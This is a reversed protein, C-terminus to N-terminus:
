LQCDSRHRQQKKKVLQQGPGIRVIPELSRPVHNPREHPLSGNPHHSGMVQCEGLDRVLHKFRRLVEMKLVTEFVSLQLKIVSQM